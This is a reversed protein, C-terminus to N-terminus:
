LLDTIILNVEEIIEEKLKNYDLQVTEAVTDKQRNKAEYELTVITTQLDMIKTHLEVLYKEVSILSGTLDKVLIEM